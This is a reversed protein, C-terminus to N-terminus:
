STEKQRKRAYAARKRLEAIDLGWVQYAVDTRISYTGMTWHNQKRTEDRVRNKIKAITSSSIKGFIRRLDTNNLEIRTDYIDVLEEISAIISLRSM